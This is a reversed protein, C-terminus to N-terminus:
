IDFVTHIQSVHFTCGEPYVTEIPLFDYCGTRINKSNQEVKIKKKKFLIRHFGRMNQFVNNRFDMYRHQLLM